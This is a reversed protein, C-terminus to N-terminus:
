RVSFYYVSLVRKKVSIVLLLDHEYVILIQLFEAYFEITKLVIIPLLHINSLRIHLLQPLLVLLQLSTLQNMPELILKLPDLASVLWALSHNRLGLWTGVHAVFTIPRAPISISLLRQNLM